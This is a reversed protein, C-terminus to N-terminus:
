KDGLFFRIGLGVQLNKNEFDAHKVPLIDHSYTAHGVLDFSAFSQEMLLSSFYGKGLEGKYYDNSFPYHVRLGAKVSYVFSGYTLFDYKISAQTQFVSNSNIEITNLDIARYYVQEAQTLKLEVVWNPRFKYKGSLYYDSLNLNKDNITRTLATNFKLRQYNSGIALSVKESLQTAWELQVGYSSSSHLVGSTNFEDEGHVAVTGQYVGILLESKKPPTQVTEAKYPVMTQEPTEDHPINPPPSEMTGAPAKLPVDNQINQLIQELTIKEGPRILDGQSRMLWPNKKLIITLYGDEGYIPKLGLSYLVESLTDKPKVTYTRGYAPLMLFQLSTLVIFIILSKKFM